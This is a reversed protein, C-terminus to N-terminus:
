SEPLVGMSSADDVRSTGQMAQLLTPMTERKRSMFFMKRGDQNEQQEPAVAEEDNETKKKLEKFM